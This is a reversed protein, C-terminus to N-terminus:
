KSKIKRQKKKEEEEAKEKARQAALEFLKLRYYKMRDTGMLSTVENMVGFYPELHKYEGTHVWSLASDSGVMGKSLLMKTVSLDRNSQELEHSARLILDGMLLLANNIEQEM